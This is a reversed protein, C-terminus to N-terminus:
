QDRESIRVNYKEIFGIPHYSLKSKRLGEIGLDQERNVYKINEFRSLFEHTMMSYVGHYATDGKEFHMLLTDEHYIEGIAFAVPKSDVYLLGGCVSLQDWARIVRDIARYEEQDKDGEFWTDMVQYVGDFTAPGMIEYTWDYSKLFKNVHNKKKHNAKGRLSRLSEFDYIYDYDDRIAESSVELDLDELVKVMAQDCKKLCCSGIDFDAMLNLLITRLDETEGLPQSFYFRDEKKNVIFLVDGIEHLHFDYKDRWAYLNTFNLESMRINYLLNRKEVMSKDNIQLPRM